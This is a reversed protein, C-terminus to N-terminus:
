CRAQFLRVHVDSLTWFHFLKLPNNSATTYAMLRTLLSCENNTFELIRTYVSTKFIFLPKVVYVRTLRSQM